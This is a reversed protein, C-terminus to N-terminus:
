NNCLMSMENLSINVIKGATSQNIDSRNSVKVREEPNLTHCKIVYFHYVNVGM